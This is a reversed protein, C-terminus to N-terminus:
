LLTRRRWRSWMSDLSLKGAGLVVVVWLLFVWFLRQDVLLSGPNADFFRGISEADLGHGVVDVYSQVLIVVIMGLAAVRAFLGVVLLLPLLLQGWLALSAVGWHVWSLQSVDYSVAEMAKPFIQVYAGMSPAFIGWLGEGMKTLAATWYYVLLTSAFVLRAMEPLYCALGKM